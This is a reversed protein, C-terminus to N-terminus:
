KIVITGKNLERALQRSEVPKWRNSYQNKAVLKASHVLKYSGNRNQQLFTMFLARRETKTNNNQNM